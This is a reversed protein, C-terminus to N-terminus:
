LSRADKRLRKVLNKTPVSESDTGSNNLYKEVANRTQEGYVGDVYGVDYGRQQLIFQIYRQTAPDKYPPYVRKRWNTALKEARMQQESSLATCIMERVAGATAHSSKEALMLWQCSRVRNVPLGLGSAFAVGLSFQAEAHAQEASKGYWLAAWAPEKDAGRGNMYIEGLQYQARAHGQDAAKQFWNRAKAYDRPLGRGVYYTIGLMYQAGQNGQRAAKRFWKAAKKYNQFEGSTYQLGLQYQSKADGQRASEQLQTSGVSQQQGTLSTCANVGVLMAGTLVVM